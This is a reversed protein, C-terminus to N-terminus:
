TLYRKIAELIILTVALYVARNSAKWEAMTVLGRVDEAVSKRCDKIESTKDFFGQRMDDELKLVRLDTKEQSRELHQVSVCNRPDCRFMEDAM